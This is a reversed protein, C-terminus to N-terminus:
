RCRLDQLEEAGSRTPDTRGHDHDEQRLLFNRGAWLRFSLSWMVVYAVVTPGNCSTASSTRAAHSCSKGKRDLSLAVHYPSRTSWEKRRVPSGLPVRPKADWGQPHNAKTTSGSPPPQCQGASPFTAVM